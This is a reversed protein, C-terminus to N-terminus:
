RGLMKAVIYIVIAGVVGGGALLYILSYEAAAVVPLLVLMTDM